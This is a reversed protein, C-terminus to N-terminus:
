GSITGGDAGEFLNGDKSAKAASEIKSVLAALSKKLQDEQKSIVDKRLKLSEAEEGLEKALDAKKRPVLVSGAMRYIEGEPAGELSKAARENEALSIELQQRQMLAMQLQQQLRQYNGVDKELEAQSAMLYCGEARVNKELCTKRTKQRNKKM